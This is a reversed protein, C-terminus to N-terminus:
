SYDPLDEEDLFEVDGDSEAKFAPAKEKPKEEKEPEKKDLSFEIEINVDCRENVLNLIVRMDQSLNDALMEYFTKEDAEEFSRVDSEKNDALTVFMKTGFPLVTYSKLVSVADMFTNVDGSLDDFLDKINAVEDDLNRVFKIYRNEEETLIGKWKKRRGIFLINLLLLWVGSFYGATLIGVCAAGAILSKVTKSMKVPKKEEVPEPKVEVQTKIYLAKYETNKDAQKSISPSWGKFTYGEKEPAKPIEIEDGEDYVKRSIVKGDSDKFVVTFKKKKPIEDPKENDSPKEEIVEEPEEEEEKEGKPEPKPKPDEIKQPKADYVATYTVSKTAKAEVSPHWNRFNYGEVEPANPINVPEGAKYNASSIIQGNYGAFTILYTEEPKELEEIVDRDYTAKYLAAGECINTVKPTWGTFEYGKKKPADPVYIKEGLSYDRSNIVYGNQDAFTVTYKVEIKGYKARYVADETAITEVNKDWGTFLYGKRTPSAPIVVTDGYTYTNKSIEKGDYDVFSVTYTMINYTAKYEANGTCVAEVRQNWGTFRYGTRSPKEPEEVMSGYTYTKNSIVNGNHDIFKVRYSKVRWNATYTTDNKAVGVYQPAWGTFTYGERRVTPAVIEDGYSYTKTEVVEDQSVFTITVKIIEWKAILETDETIVDEDPDYARGEIEWGDFIYGERTPDEPLEIKGDVDTIVHQIETGDSFKGGNANVTVDNKKIYNARVTLNGYTDVPIIAGMQPEDISYNAGDAGDNEITWGIFYYGDKTVDDPLEVELSGDYGTYLPGDSKGGDLIYRISFTKREYQVYLTYDQNWISFDMSLDYKIGYGSQPSHKWGGTAYWGPKSASPIYSVHGDADTYLTVASTGDPYTGGNADFTIAYSQKWVATYTQPGYIPFDFTSVQRGSSDKWYKFFYGERVPDEPKALDEGNYVKVTFPTSGAYGLDFTVTHMPKETFHATVILNGYTGKPITLSGQPNTINWGGPVDNEVTYGTFTHHAKKADNLVFSSDTPKYSTRNSLDVSGGDYDYTITYTNADWGAYLNIDETLVTDFDYENSLESDKYWKTFIYGNRTPSEPKSLKSMYDVYRSGVASGGNSNFTVFPSKKYLPYLTTTEKYTDNDWDVPTTYTSDTYWGMFTYGTKTPDTPKTPKTGWDITQSPIYTGGDQNFYVSIKKLEWQAEYQTPTVGDIFNTTGEVFKEEPSYGKFYHGEWTPNSIGTLDLCNFYSSDTRLSTTVTEEGNQFTGGNADLTIVPTYKAYRVVVESEQDIYHLYAKDELHDGDIDSLKITHTNGPYANCAWDIIDESSKSSGYWDPLIPNNHTHSEWGAFIYGEKTPEEPMGNTYHMNDDKGYFEIYKRTTGDEFTGINADVAFAWDQLDIYYYYDAYPNVGNYYSLFGNVIFTGDVDTFDIKNLESFKVDSMKEANTILPLNYTYKGTAKDRHYFTYAEYWCGPASLSTELPRSTGGGELTRRSYLDRLKVGDLYIKLGYNSAPSTIDSPNFGVKYIGNDVYEATLSLPHSESSDVLTIEGDLEGAIGNKFVKLYFYETDKEWIRVAKAVTGQADLVPTVTATNDKVSYGEYSITETSNWKKMHNSILYEDGVCGLYENSGLLTGTASGVRDEIIYKAPIDMGGTIEVNSLNRSFYTQDEIDIDDYVYFMLGGIKEVGAPIDGRLKTQRLGAFHVLSNNWVCCFIKLNAPLTGTVVVNDSQLGTGSVRFSNFYMLSDPLTTTLKLSSCEAFAFSGIMELNPPLADGITELKRCGNFAKDNIYKTTAPLVCSKLSSCDSFASIGVELRTTVNSLDVIELATCDKFCSNNILEVTSPLVIKKITTYGEFESSLHFERFGEGFVLVEPNYDSAKFAYSTGETGYGMGYGSKITPTYPPDNDIYDWFLTKTDEFWYIKVAPHMTFNGTFPTNTENSYLTYTKSTDFVCVGNNTNYSVGGVTFVTFHETDFVIEEDTVVSEIETVNDDEVRYVTEEIVDSIIDGPNYTINEKAEEIDLGTISIKVLEDFDVPQWKEGNVLIDIDFAAYVYYELDDSINENVKEEIDKIEEIETASLEASKPMMGAATVNHGNIVQNLETYFLENESEKEDEESEEDVIESETEPQEEKNEETYGCKNCKGEELVCDESESYECGEESCTVLHTGDLGSEYVFSHTHPDKESKDSNEVFTEGGEEKEEITEEKREAPENAFVLAQSFNTVLMATLLVISLVKKLM